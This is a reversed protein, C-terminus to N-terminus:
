SNKLSIQYAEWLKKPKMAVLQVDGCNGCINAKVQSTFPVTRNFLGTKKPTKNISVGLWAGEVTRLNQTPIIKESRCYLCIKNSEEM